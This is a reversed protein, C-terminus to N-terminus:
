KQSLLYKQELRLVLSNKLIIFEKPIVDEIMQDIKILKSEENLFRYIFWITKENLVVEKQEFYNDIKNIM